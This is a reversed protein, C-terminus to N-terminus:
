KHAGEGTAQCSLQEGVVSTLGALNALLSLCQTSQDTGFRVTLCNFVSFRM